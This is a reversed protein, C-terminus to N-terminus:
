VEEIGAQWDEKIEEFIEPGLIIEGTYPEVDALDPADPDYSITIHPQYEPHDWSAGEEKMWEHRWMLENSMFLLVRADGFREMLRVGGPGVKIESNWAEGMKMWDVPTRSFAITVHMDNAPLTTKFGQSKAWAIIEDANLVDRRVYLTRPAADAAQQEETPEVPESQAEPDVVGPPEPDPDDAGIGFEEEWDKQNDAMIQELGPYFGDEIMQNAVAERLEASAFLGTRGLVEATDAKSKAIEAKEKDSMQWLPSWSYWVEPPRSGLASRILCEDLNYLAPTIVLKQESALRDYYNRLDSDGTANMGDPSQGYLRTAPIDAFGATLTLFKALIEPLTAFSVAKRDYEEEKDRILARNVGKATAAIQFRKLLRREYEPDALNALMDPIGFVDVNAEFVLSAINAATADGQKLASYVGEFVSDGWGANKGISFGPEPRQNGIFVALRSPHIDLLSTAGSVQYSKPKGYHESMPDTEIDGAVMDRCSLVTLYKVGGKKVRDFELPEMLDKDGTGIYIAAGGWLRSKIRAELLKQWYGLRNEEAEILTIQEQDAQWDRGERVSDMAPIDIIKRAIANNRYLAMIQHDDLYTMTYAAGAMKDREPDGLGSVMSGFGDMMQYEAAM